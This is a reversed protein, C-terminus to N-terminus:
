AHSRRIHFYSLAPEHVEGTDMPVTGFVGHRGGSDIDGVLALLLREKNLAKSCAPEM